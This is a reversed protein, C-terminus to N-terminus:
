RSGGADIRLYTTVSEGSYYPTVNETIRESHGIFLWGGVGILPTMRSWFREQVDQEFYIVVNRCFVIDFPGRVPWDNSQNLNLVRFTILSKLADSAEVYGPASESFYKRRLVPDVDALQEERYVGRSGVELTIPDIDTALIKIGLQAARPELELLTLAMTYPEEGSSCGASWLRVPQGRRAAEILPPLAHTKMFEFHHPERFFRTVHTTLASLLGTREDFGEESTVFECYEAFSYLGLKRLRKVLRAYVLSRKSEDLRIGSEKYMIESIRNFDADSFQFDSPPQRAAEANAASM